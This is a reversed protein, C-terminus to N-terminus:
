LIEDITIDRDALVKNLQNICENAQKKNVKIAKM